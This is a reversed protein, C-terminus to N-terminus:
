SFKRKVWQRPEQKQQPSFLLLNISSGKFATEIANKVADWELGGLGSGLAPCAVKSIHNTEAWIRLKEAGCGVWSLQSGNRWDDKTAVNVVHISQNQTKEEFVFIGGPKLKGSACVSTYAKFNDPYRNKFELALGKGMVGVCNVANVIAQADTEFLSGSSQILVSM